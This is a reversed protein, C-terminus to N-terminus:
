ISRPHGMTPFLTGSPVGPPEQLLSAIVYPGEGGRRGDGGTGRAVETSVIAGRRERIHEPTPSVTNFHLVHAKNLALVDARNLRLVLQEM